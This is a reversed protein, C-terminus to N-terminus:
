KIIKIIIIAVLLLLGYKLMQNEEIKSKFNASIESIKNETMAGITPEQPINELVIEEIIDYDPHLQIFDIIKNEERSLLELVDAEIDDTAECNNARLFNIVADSNHELTYQIYNTM